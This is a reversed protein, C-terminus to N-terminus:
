RFHYALGLALGVDNRTKKQDIVPSNYCFVNDRAELRIAARAIQFETGLAGYGALCTRNKLENADFVYTRAGAGLGVFPKILWSAGMHGVMGYELGVDYQFMHVDADLVDYKNQAPVWGFTGLVHFNERVEVAAQVGFLAAPKFLDRQTGTPINAGVFPRVEFPTGTVQAPLAAAGAALVAVTFILKRM